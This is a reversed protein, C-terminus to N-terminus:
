SIEEGADRYRGDEADGGDGVAGAILLVQGPIEDLTADPSQYFCVEADDTRTQDYQLAEERVHEARGFRTRCASVSISATHRCFM